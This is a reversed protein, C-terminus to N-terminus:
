LWTSEERWLADVLEHWSQKEISCCGGIWLKDYYVELRSQRLTGRKEGLSIDHWRRWRFALRCYYLGGRIWWLRIKLFVQRLSSRSSAWYPLRTNDTESRHRYAPPVNRLRVSPLDRGRQFSRLYHSRRMKKARWEVIWYCSTIALCICYYSFQGHYQQILDFEM